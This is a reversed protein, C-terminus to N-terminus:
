IQVFHIPAQLIEQRNEKLLVDKLITLIRIVWRPISVM